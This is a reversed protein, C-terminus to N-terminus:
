WKGERENYRNFPLRHFAQNALRCKRMWLQPGTRKLEAIRLELTRATSAPPKTCSRMNQLAAGAPIALLEARRLHDETYINPRAHGVSLCGLYQGSAVLPASLWCRMQKHGKFTHWKEETDTDAILVSKQEMLIRHCFTSEDAVFTLPTRPGPKEPQEPCIREGLALMHPGGTRKAVAPM